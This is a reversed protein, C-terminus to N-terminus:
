PILLTATLGCHDSLHSFPQGEVAFPVTKVDEFRITFDDTLEPLLRFIYDLCKNEPDLPTPGLSSTTVPHEHLNTYAVDIVELAGKELTPDDTAQDLRENSNSSGELNNIMARYEASHGVGDERSLRGDTNLDGVLVVVTESLSPSPLGAKRKLTDLIFNSARHLQDLRVISSPSSLPPNAEYSAQTHTSFLMLNRGQGLDIQAHLVGKAALWDSHVGRPYAMFDSSTIRLRSVILLGGDVQGAAWSPIPCACHYILGAEKAMRILETRRTTGFAFCEQVAVVDYQSLQLSAFLRLREWKYDGNGSHIGPPRLFLNYTLIKVATDPM